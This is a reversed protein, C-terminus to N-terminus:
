RPDNPEVAGSTAWMDISVSMRGLVNQEIRPSSPPKAHDM